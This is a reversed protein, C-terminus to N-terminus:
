YGFEEKRKEMNRKYRRTAAAKDKRKKEGKSTFFTRERLEQFFGDRMLKKKLVRLAGNVDNNRVTITTGKGDALTEGRKKFNKKKNYSM